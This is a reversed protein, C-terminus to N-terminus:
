HLSTNKDLKVKEGLDKWLNGELGSLWSSCLIDLKGNTTPTDNSHPTELSCALTRFLTIAMATVDM